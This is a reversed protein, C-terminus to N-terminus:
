YAIMKSYPLPGGIRASIMMRGRAAERATMPTLPRGFMDAIEAAVAASMGGPDRQALPCEDTQTLGSLVVWAGSDADYIRSERASGTVIILTGDYPDRQERTIRPPYTITQAGSRRLRQNEGATYDSTVYVDELRGSIETVKRDFIGQLAEMAVAMDEAPPDESADIDNLRRLARKIVDACTPM